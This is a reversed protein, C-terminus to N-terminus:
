PERCCSLGLGVILLPCGGAGGGDVKPILKDWHTTAAGKATKQGADKFVRQLETMRTIIVGVSLVKLQRLLRFNNLDRDYFPDKNNWEVEIGVGNKFNDIEHTPSPTEVDDVVIKTDFRRKQWGRQKQFFNDITISILSKSGGPKTLMDRTLWFSDLCDTIDRWESPFDYKLISVAHEREDFTFKKRLNPPIRVLGM